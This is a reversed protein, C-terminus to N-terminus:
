NNKPALIFIMFATLFLVRCCYSLDINLLNPIYFYNTVRPVQYFLLTLLLAINAGLSMIVYMCHPGEFIEFLFGDLLRSWNSVPPDGPLVFKTSGPFQSIASLPCEVVVHVLNQGNKVGEGRSHVLTSM